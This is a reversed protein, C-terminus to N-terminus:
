SQIWEGKISLQLPYIFIEEGEERRETLRVIAISDPSSVAM